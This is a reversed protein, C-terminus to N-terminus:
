NLSDVVISDVQTTDVSTTDVQSNNKSNCAIITLMTFIFLFLFVKKIM